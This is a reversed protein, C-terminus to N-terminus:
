FLRMDPLPTVWIGKFWSENAHIVDAYNWATIFIYDPPNARLKDPFVIPTHTGPMLRGARLPSADVMAELYDLKCANVWLTAKGAAGYGWIRSTKSLRSLTQGVVDIKQAIGSGFKMWTDPTNLSLKAEYAAVADYDATRPRLDRSASLRLSGGHMPLRVADFVNFGFRKLLIEITGLSYFTLHEHYLTDWQLQELLDGAYMIELCLVGSDKLCCRAGNLILDPRSNHPFANSGTVVDAKGYKEVIKEATTPDFFGTIVKLSKDRALETINVSIDVGVAAIGSRELPELLIGDNCGFEVVLGPNFRQKLWDAYGEFHKILPAVTSSSFAYDKFLIEPDIPDVIQVLSCDECVHIPLPYLQESAIESSGKLFGGALPMNGLDLMVKLRSGGCGRCAHTM